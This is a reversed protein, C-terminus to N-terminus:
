RLSGAMAGTYLGSLPAVAGEPRQVHLEEAIGSAFVQRCLAVTAMFSEECFGQACQEMCDIGSLSCREDREARLLDDRWESRAAIRPFNSGVRM